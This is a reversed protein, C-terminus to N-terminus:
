QGARKKYWGSRLLWESLVVTAVALAVSILVLRIAPLDDGIQHTANYIALPLTRTEGPINGAFTITAGFEGLARGFGLLAGAWIGPRSLPLSIKTFVQWPTAGLTRAADELRKPVVEFAAKISRVMLPFAVIGAALAAGKWDFAFEIGLWNSLISGLPGGRGLLALLLYGTVVPPLILPLMVISEILAAWRSPIRVLAWGAAIALPLFFVTAVLAVKLSTYLATWELQTM